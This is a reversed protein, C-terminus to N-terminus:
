QNLFAGNAYPVGADLRVSDFCIQSYSNTNSNGLVIRLNGPSVAPSTMVTYTASGPGASSPMVVTLTGPLDNGAGDQLKVVINSQAPLGSDRALLDVQLRYATNPQLANTITQILLGGWTAYGAANGPGPYNNTLWYTANLQHAGASSSPGGGLYVSAWGSVVAANDSGGGLPNFGANTGAGTTFGHTNTGGSPYTRFNFGPNSVALREAQAPLALALWVVFGAIYYKMM